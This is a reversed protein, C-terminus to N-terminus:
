KVYFRAVTLTENDNTFKIVTGSFYTDGHCGDFDGIVEDTKDTIRMFDNLDYVYNRYRFFSSEEISDYDDKKDAQEAESLDFFNLIEIENEIHALELM